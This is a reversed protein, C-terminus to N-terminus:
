GGDTGVPLQVARTAINALGANGLLEGVAAGDSFNIGRRALMAVIWSMLLDMAPGGYELTTAEVSEVWGGPRAVRVLESVVFPWRDHPLALVLLRMHVFDFSADPVPLGELVNGAVFGYNPPRLDLRIGGGSQEDLRPSTVDLGVVRAQPFVQAMERAWLGTGCGVDLISAPARLP